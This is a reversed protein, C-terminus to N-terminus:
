CLPQSLLVLRPVPGSGCTPLWGDVRVHRISVATLPSSIRTVLHSSSFKAIGIEAVLGLACVAFALEPQTLVASSGWHAIAAFIARVLVALLRDAYRLFQQLQV